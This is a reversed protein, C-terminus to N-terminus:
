DGRGAPTIEVVFGDPLERRGGIFDGNIDSVWLRNGLFLLGTPNVFGSAVLVPEGGPALRYVKGDRKLPQTMPLAVQLDGADTFFLEGGFGGFSKPAFRLGAPFVLGRAVPKPDIEGKPSIRVIMGANAQAQPAGVGPAITVLMADGGPTFALDFPGGLKQTDAFPTCKGDATVEYITDNLITLAFFRGAFPSGPPGFRAAVGGGAIGHNVQGAAPLTCLISISHTRMDVRQIVHNVSIGQEGTMAQALTFIQGGFNGFDAPAVDMGTPPLLKDPGVLVSVQGQPSISVIRGGHGDEEGGDDNMWVEGDHALMFLSDYLQGPPVLMRASFGRAAAIRPPALLRQIVRRAEQGGPQARAPRAGSVVVMLAALMLCSAARLGNGAVSKNRAFPSRLSRM